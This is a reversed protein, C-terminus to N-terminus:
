SDFGSKKKVWELEVKLKGIEQYLADKEAIESKHKSKGGRSFIESLGEMAQSKWQSVQNPHVGFRTALENLTKNNKFAALVVKVKFETSFRKRKM